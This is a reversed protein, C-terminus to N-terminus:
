TSTFEESGMGWTLNIPQSSSLIPDRGLEQFGKVHNLEISTCAKIM